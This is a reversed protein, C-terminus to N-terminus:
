ELHKSMVKNIEKYISHKKRLLLFYEDKKMKRDRIKNLLGSIKDELILFKDYLYGDVPSDSEEDWLDSGWALASDSVFLELNALNMCVIDKGYPVFATSDINTYSMSILFDGFYSRKRLEKQEEFKEILEDTSIPLKKTKM